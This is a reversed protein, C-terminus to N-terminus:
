GASLEALGAESPVYERKWEREAATGPTVRVLKRKVLSIGTSAPCDDLSKAGVKVHWLAHIRHALVAGPTDRLLTLVRSQEPSIM